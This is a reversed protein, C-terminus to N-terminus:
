FRVRASVTAGGPVPAVVPPEGGAHLTAWLFMGAGAALAAGGIAYGILATRNAAQGDQDIPAVSTGTCGNACSAAIQSADNAGQVSFYVAVGVLVAGVGATVAGAWRLKNTSSGRSTHVDVTATAPVPTPASISAAATDPTPVEVTPQTACSQLDTIFQEVKGRNDADPRAHLYDRYFQLAHDCDHLQRYAQAIDFLFLADPLAAFAKQYESIAAAYEHADYHARAAHDAARAIESADAAPTGTSPDGSPTSSSTQGSAPEPQAAARGTVLAVILLVASGSRV